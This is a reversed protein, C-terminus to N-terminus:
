GWVLNEFKCRCKNRIFDVFVGDENWRIISGGEADEHGANGKAHPPVYTVKNGIFEPKLEIGKIFKGKLNEEM